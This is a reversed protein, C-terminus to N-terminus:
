SNSNTSMPKGQPEAPLSDEQLAPPRTEIRPNPLDGPSPFPWGSWYEPRSFDMPNCLTARSQPVKVKWKWFLLSAKYEKRSNYYMCCALYRPLHLIRGQLMNLYLSFVHKCLFLPLVTCCFLSFASHFGIHSSLYLPVFQRSFTISITVWKPIQLVSLSWWTSFSLCSCFTLIFLSILNLDQGSSIHLFPKLSLQM